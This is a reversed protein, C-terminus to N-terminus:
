DTPQGYHVLVSWPVPLAQRTGSHDRYFLRGHESGYRVLQRVLDTDRRCQEIIRERNGEQYWRVTQLSDDPREMGLTERVLHSLSLRFGLQQQVEDLLSLTPLTGLPTDSWPQLVQYDFDQTNFGIVLDAARLSALLTDVTEETYVRYRTDRTDYTVALGLGLLHKHQWGGVADASKQTSLTLYLHHPTPERALFPEGRVSDFTAVTEGLINQLLKIGELRHLTPESTCADCRQTTLCRQCGHLCECQQLIQLGLRLVREHAQYLFASVGNGGPPADIFFVEPNSATQSQYVGGRLEAAGDVLVLSLSVLLAHVLTHAATFTIDASGPFDFWVGQTRFQRQRIPLVHVSQREHTQPDCHEFAQRTMTYLGAGYTVRLWEKSVSADVRRDSMTTTVLGRTLYDMQVPQVHLRYGDMTHREVRWTRGNETYVAGEFYDRFAEEPTVRGLFCGDLLNIVTCLRTYSRLSVRRHPWRQTAVWARSEMHREIFKDNALQEMVESLGQIGPYREGASLALEAAACLLHQRAITPNSPSLPLEQLWSRQYIGPYTLVYRELPTAGGLILTSLTPVSHSALLALYEHLLTLSAPLGLFILSTLALPRIAAVPTDHPVALAVGDGQLLQLESLHYVEQAQANRANQHSLPQVVDNWDLAYPTLLLPQLGASRQQAVLQRCVTLPDTSVALLIRSQPQLHRAEGVVIQCRQATLTHVLTAANALPASTLLWQPRAGYHSALRQLRRLLHAMHAGFASTYLHVDTVVIYRLHELFRRWGAHYALIGAHLMEATTLLIHPPEQRITRRQTRPTDGDYITATLRQEPLLLDNWVTLTRSQALEPQKQPFIFLGHGQRDHVLAQYMALLRAVGRGAGTPALFCVNQGQQLHELTQLQATTLGVIGQTQMAAILWPPLRRPFALGPPHAAPLTLCSRVESGAPPAKTLQTCLVEVAQM